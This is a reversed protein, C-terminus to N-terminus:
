LPMASGKFSMVTGLLTGGSITSVRNQTNCVKAYLDKTHSQAM